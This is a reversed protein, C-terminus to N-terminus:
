GVIEPDRPLRVRSTDNQASILTLLSTVFDRDEDSLCTWNVSLRLEVTGGSPLKALMTRNESLRVGEGDVGM